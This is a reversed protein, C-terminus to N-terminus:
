YRVRIFSRPVASVPRSISMVAPQVAQGRRCDGVVVGYPWDPGPAVQRGAGGIM